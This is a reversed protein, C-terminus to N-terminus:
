STSHLAALPGDNCRHKWFSAANGQVLRCRQFPHLANVWWMSRHIIYHNYVSNPTFKKHMIYCNIAKNPECGDTWKFGDPSEEPSKTLRAWGEGPFFPRKFFPFHLINHNIINKKFSKESCVLNSLVNTYHYCVTIRLNRTQYESADAKRETYM